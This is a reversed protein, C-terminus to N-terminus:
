TELSVIAIKNLVHNQSLLAILGFTNRRSQPFCKAYHLILTAVGHLRPKECCTINRRLGKRPHVAGKMCPTMFLGVDCFNADVQDLNDTPRAEAARQRLSRRCITRPLVAFNDQALVRTTWVVLDRAQRSKAFCASKMKGKDNTRWRGSRRLM